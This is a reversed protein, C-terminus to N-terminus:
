LHGSCTATTTLDVFDLQLSSTLFRALFGFTQDLELSNEQRAADEVVTVAALSKNKKLINSFLILLLTNTETM